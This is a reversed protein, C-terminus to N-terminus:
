LSATTAETVALFHRYNLLKSFLLTYLASNFAANILLYILAFSAMSPASRELTMALVSIRCNFKLIRIMKISVAFLVFGILWTFYLELDRQ